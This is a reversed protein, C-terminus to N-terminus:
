SKRSRLSRTEWIAVVVLVLANAASFAVPSLFPATPTALILLGVGVLHSLPLRGAITRKFLIDGALFLAAGTSVSIWTRADTHGTPHALVLEDGVAAVIIGAVIPLHWYTYALRAIRGPDGSSAIHHSGREAGTDLYIWWMAVAAVFAVTFAAISQPTWALKTFTAGTVLISEGLAIIIFLACREAMHAGDIDWNRTSSRGLGPVWFACAPSIYDLSLAVLWLGLRAQGEAFGGAIWFAGAVALWVSIRRLNRRRAAGEIAWVIFATRGLQVGVYATAFALGRSEFAQPISTSLVLGVLMLGLLLTRVTANEPDLWNTAWSTYMWAWWVAMLMLATQVGGIPTFHALLSHSLQTVAFVFALDFFLEVFTVRAHESDKRVRLYSGHSSTTMFAAQASRM